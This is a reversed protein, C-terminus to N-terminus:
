KLNGGTVKELANLALQLRVQSELYAFQAEITDKQALRVEFFGFKGEKFALNMLGLNELAKGLVDNKFLSLEESASVLNAYAEEIEREISRELSAQRILAQGAKAATENRDAQKRDFLPLPFSLMVGKEDLGTDQTYFGTVTFSPVSERGALKMAARAQQVEASASLADPRQVATLTRLKEKDPVPPAEMLLDGEAKFDPKPTLGLIMQLDLLAARRDKEALMRERKAKGLEVDALNQELQSIEGAQFKVKASGTFEEQLRVAEGALEVKRKAALAKVFSDKVEAILIRQRDRIDQATKEMGNRATDVRLGRQGAIEFEQSLSLGKNTVKEGGGPVTDKKSLSGEIVPNNRLWLGAQDLRGQAADKELRVSQMEPNSNLATEIAENLTMSFAPHAFLLLACAIVIM